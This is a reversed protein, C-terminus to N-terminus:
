IVEAELDYGMTDVVRARVITGAEGRDLLVIGDIEPAQGYWRGYPVGEDEDIGEVLVDITNRILSAAKNWGIDDALDRLKQARRVRTRRPVQSKMEGAATGAEQSYPFVAVYDLHASEVFRQAELADARTEGPFGAILTTRLVVGPLADRVRDILALFEDASGRRRMARLVPASAHQLPMDLYRVVNPNEAIAALLDDTVGDPQVYMLRLWVVGPVRAVSRVVDALTDSTSLDRGYATIDQGILVIERAGAAVLERTEAVIEDVSRSRYPGRIAPITCYACSRHCGDSIQLYASVGVESRSPCSTAPAAKVGTLRELVDLIAHEETVPVFADVEPMAEALDAGYRSPMCGAVIVRRGAREPVWDRTIELITGLSEETADTIFSCTNVVLIDADAPQEALSFPSAAVAARMRDTDVENKPCGLTVFAVSPAPAAGATV